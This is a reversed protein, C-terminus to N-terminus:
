YQDPKALRQFVNDTLALILASLPENTLASRQESIATDGLEGTGLPPRLARGAEHLENIQRALEGSDLRQPKGTVFHTCSEHTLRTAQNLLPHAKALRDTDTEGVLTLAARIHAQNWAIGAVSHDSRRQLHSVGHTFNEITMEHGGPTLAQIDVSAIHPLCRILIQGLAIAQERADGQVTDSVHLFRSYSVLGDEGTRVELETIWPNEVRIRRLVSDEGGILGVLHDAAALDCSRAVALFEALQKIPASRLADVLSSGDDITQRVADVLEPSGNELVALLQTAEDIDDTSALLEALYAEGAVSVLDDRSSSGSVAKMAQQAARLEAPLIDVLPM